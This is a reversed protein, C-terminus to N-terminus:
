YKRSTVATRIVSQARNKVSLSDFNMTKSNVLFQVYPKVKASASNDPCFGGLRLNTETRKSSIRNTESVVKIIEPLTLTNDKLSAFPVEAFYIAKKSDDSSYIRYKDVKTIVLTNGGIDSAEAFDPTAPISNYKLICGSNCELIALGSAFEATGSGVDIKAVTDSEKIDRSILDIINRSEVSVEKETTLKSQFSVNQGVTGLTFVM